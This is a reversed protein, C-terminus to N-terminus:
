PTGQLSRKGDFRWNGFADKVWYTHLELMTKGGPRPRTEFIDDSIGAGHLRTGVSSLQTAVVALGNKGEDLVNVRIGADQGGLALKLDMYQKYTDNYWMITEMETGPVCFDLITTMDTTMLARIMAENRKDLSQRALILYGLGMVAAVGVVIAITRPSVRPMKLTALRDLLADVPGRLEFGPERVAKEKPADKPPPPEGMVAQGTPTLHFVRLCKKCVLRLNM